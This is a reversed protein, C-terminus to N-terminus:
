AEHMSMEKEVCKLEPTRRLETGTRKMTLDGIRKNLRSGLMHQPDEFMAELGAWENGM